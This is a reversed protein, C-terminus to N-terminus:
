NRVEEKDQDEEIDETLKDSDIFSKEDEKADLEPKAPVKLRRAKIIEDRCFNSKWM